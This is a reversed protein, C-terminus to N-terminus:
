KEVCDLTVSQDMTRGGETVVRNTLTYTTGASGGSLWATTLTTTNEDSDITITGVDVTWSSATISDGALRATWDLGYDLVENPDKDPWTLFAM